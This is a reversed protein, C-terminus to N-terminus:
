ASESIHVHTEREERTDLCRKFRYSSSPVPKSCTALAKSYFMRLILEVFLTPTIPASLPLRCGDFQGLTFHSKPHQRSIVVNERVDYDVRLPVAVIRRDIIDAFMLDEEFLEVSEHFTDFSPPPLYAARSRLLEGAGVQFSMQFLSDDFLRFLYSKSSLAEAHLEKYPRNRLMFSMPNGSHTVDVVDGTRHVEFPMNQDVSLGNETVFIILDTM